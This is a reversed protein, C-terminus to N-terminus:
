PRARATRTARATLGAPAPQNTPSGGCTVALMSIAYEGCGTACLGCGRCAAADVMAVDGGADGRRLSIAGYRCRKTCRGCADCTAAAVSAVHRRLPWVAEADLRRATVRPFCCDTCCNCVGHGGHLSDGYATHMLGRRDSERLVEVARDHTLEWGVNRDNGFRLCVNLPKSCNGWMARCNCPWLYVHPQARLLTEAEDLLLFTYAGQDSEPARGDRMAEVGPGIEEIYYALEWENLPRRVADPLDCWGEFFAWMEFRAHFSAPSVRGEDDRDLVARRVARELAQPALAELGAAGDAAGAAKAAALVLGADSPTYFRDLWPLLFEPAGTASAIALRVADDLPRPPAGNEAAVADVLSADVHQVEPARQHRM